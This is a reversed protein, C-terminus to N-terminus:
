AQNRKAIRDLRESLRKAGVHDGQRQLLLRLHALAQDHEPALYLAKRYNQIADSPSGGADHALGLLYFADPSPGFERIHLAAATKVEDLRGANAAHEIGALSAAAKDPAPPAAAVVALKQAFPRPPPQVRPATRPPAVAATRSRRKAVPEPVPPPRLKDAKVFAFARPLRVSAFGHMTPQGAEAPGVLLLGSPALMRRLRELALIQTERDFYILLNRCFVIDFPVASLPLTPGLLNGHSFRVQRRVLERPTYGGDVAEFHRDRFGLDSGRFSNRGYIAREAYVLNRTSVDIAEVSFEHPEFGADFLAMTMSYPEEGTSCPLSLLRVAQGPRRCARAHRTMAAFAERDRFFWTEPVVVTDILEQREAPDESLHRWYDHLDDLGCATMRRKLAHRIVSAGVTESSLGIMERLLQEFVGTVM